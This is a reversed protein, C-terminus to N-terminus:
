LNDNERWGMGHVGWRLRSAEIQELRKKSQDEISKIKDIKLKTTEDRQDIDVFNRNLDIM